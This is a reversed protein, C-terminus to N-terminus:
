KLYVHVANSSIAGDLSSALLTIPIAVNPALQVNIQFVGYITGPIVGAYLIRAPASNADVVEFPNQEQELPTGSTAIAGDQLGTSWIAGTGFLTVVSGRAAPNSASNVSGDQNLAAAHLGDTTFIGLSQGYRSISLGPQLTVTGSPLMVQVQQSGYESFEFPVQFNIQTTGAYLVTAPVGGILVQINQPAGDLDFGFLSVLEGPYLGTGLAYSAANAFGVLFPTNFAYSPSLTLLGASSALLLRGGADLAPPAEVVGSPFRFLTQAKAGTSDLRLVFDAGINPVGPLKPFQPSSSTGALYANGSADLVIGAALADSSEGLDTSYVVTSGDPSLKAAFLGPIGLTPPINPGPHPTVPAYRGFLDINGGSDQAMSLTYINGYTAGVSASWLLKSGDASLQLVYGSGVNYSGDKIGAVTAEGLGDVVISSVTANTSEHGICSSGGECASSGTGVLTSYVLKGAPSIKVVFSYASTDYFNDVGGGTAMFAGPTTPFDTEDTSGGVYVSGAADIAIATAYTAFLFSPVIGSPQHGALYTAFLLKSGTPDLELIFGATRYPVKQPVIPNVLRFDDSDTNGAIWVNGSHDVAVAQPVDNGSGGVRPFGYSPAGSSPLDVLSIQFHQSSPNLGMNTRATETGVFLLDGNPLQVVPIQAIDLRALLVLVLLLKPFM